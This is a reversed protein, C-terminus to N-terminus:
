LANKVLESFNTNKKIAWIELERKSFVHINKSIEIGKIAGNHRKKYITQRSVNFINCVEPTTYYYDAKGLLISELVIFFYSKLFVLLEEKVLVDFFFEKIELVCSLVKTREIDTMEVGHYLRYIDNLETESVYLKNFGYVELFQVANLFFQKKDIALELKPKELERMM